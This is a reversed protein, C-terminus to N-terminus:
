TYKTSTFVEIIECWGIKIWNPVCRELPGGNARAFNWYTTFAVLDFNSCTILLMKSWLNTGRCYPTGFKRSNQVCQKKHEVKYSFALSVLNPCIPPWRRHHGPRWLQGTWPTIWTTWPDAKSAQCGDFIVELRGLSPRMLKRENLLVCFVTHGFIGFFQSARTVM